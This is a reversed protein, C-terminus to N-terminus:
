NPMILTDLVCSIDVLLLIRANKNFDDYYLWAILWLLVAALSLIGIWGSITLLFDQRLGRRLPGQEVPAASARCSVIQKSAWIHSCLPVFLSRWMSSDDCFCSCFCTWSTHSTILSHYAAVTDRRIQIIVVVIYLLIDLM